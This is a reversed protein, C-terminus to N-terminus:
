FSTSKRCGHCPQRKTNEHRWNLKATGNQEFCAVNRGTEIRLNVESNWAELPLSENTYQCCCSLLPIPVVTFPRAIRGECGRAVATSFCYGKLTLFGLTVDYRAPTPAPDVPARATINQQAQPSVRGPGTWHLSTTKTSKM